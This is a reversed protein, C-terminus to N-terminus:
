ESVLLTVTPTTRPLLSAQLQRCLQLHAIPHPLFRPPVLSTVQPRLTVFLIYSDLDETCYAWRNWILSGQLRYVTSKFLEDCCFKTRKRRTCRSDGGKQKTMAGETKSQINRFPRPPNQYWQSVIRRFRCRYLYSNTRPILRLAVVGLRIFLVRHCEFGNSVLM